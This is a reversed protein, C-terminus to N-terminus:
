SRSDVQRWVGATVLGKEIELKADRFSLIAERLECDMLSLRSSILVM